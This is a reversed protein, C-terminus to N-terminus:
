PALTSHNEPTITYYHGNTYLIFTRATKQNNPLVFTLKIQQNPLLEAYVEDNHYWVRFFPYGATHVWTVNRYAMADAIEDVWEEKTYAAPIPIIEGHANVIIANHSTELVNRYIDWSTVNAVRVTVNVEDSVPEYVLGLPRWEGNWYHIKDVQCARVAGEVVRSMNDVGSASVRDLCLVYVYVDLVDEDSALSTPMFGLFLLAFCILLSLIGKRM